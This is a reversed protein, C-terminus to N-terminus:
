LRPDWRVPQAKNRNMPPSPWFARTPAHAITTSVWTSTPIPPSRIPWPIRELPGLEPFCELYHELLPGPREIRAASEDVQWRDEMDIKVLEALLRSRPPAISAACGHADVAELFANIRPPMGNRWALDFRELRDLLEDQIGLEFAAPDHDLGPVTKM